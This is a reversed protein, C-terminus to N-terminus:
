SQSAATSAAPSRWCSGSWRPAGSPAPRSTDDAPQASRRPATGSSCSRGDPDPDAPQQLRPRHGRGAHRREGAAPDAPSARWSRRRRSTPTSSWSARPRGDADRVLVWRAEIILEKGERTFQRAEGSWEGRALTARGARGCGPQRRPLAARQRQPWRKRPPGATSDSPATTGTCSATNWTASWSPTPSRTSCPRRSAAATRRGTAGGPGGAAPRRQGRGPPRHAPRGPRPRGDDLHAPGRRVGNFLGIWPPSSVASHSFGWPRSSATALAATLLTDGGARAVLPLGVGSRRVPVDVAVAQQAFVDGVFLGACLAVVITLVFLSKDDGMATGMRRGTTAAAPLPEAAGMTCGPPGRMAVATPRRGPQVM